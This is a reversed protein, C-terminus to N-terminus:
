VLDSAPHGTGINLSSLSVYLITSTIVSTSSFLMGMLGAFLLKSGVEGVTYGATGHAIGYADANALEDMNVATLASMTSGTILAAITGITQYLGLLNAVEEDSSGHVVFGRYVVRRSRSRTPTPMRSDTETAMMQPMVSAVASSMISTLSPSLCEQETTCGDLM